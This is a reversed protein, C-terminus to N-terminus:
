GAETVLNSAEVSGLAEIRGWTRWSDILVSRSRQNLRAAFVNCGEDLHDRLGRFRPILDEGAKTRSGSAARSRASGSLQPLWALSLPCPREATRQHM